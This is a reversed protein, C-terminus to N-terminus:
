KKASTKKATTKKTTRAATKKTAAKKKAATKRKPKRNKPAEPDDSGYVTVVLVDEHGVPTVIGDTPEKAPPQAAGASGM